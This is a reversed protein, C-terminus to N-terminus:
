ASAQSAQEKLLTKIQAVERRLARFRSPQALQGTARQVRLNLHERHLEILKKNLEAASKGRLEALKM